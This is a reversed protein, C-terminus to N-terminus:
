RVPKERDKELPILPGGPYNWWMNEEDDFTTKPRNMRRILEQIMREQETKGTEGKRQVAETEPEELSKRYLRSVDLDLHLADAFAVAPVFLAIIPLYKV